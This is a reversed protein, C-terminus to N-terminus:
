SKDPDPRTRWFDERRHAREAALLDSYQQHAVDAPMEEVSAIEIQHVQHWPYIHRGRLLFGSDSWNKMLAEVETKVDRQHRIPLLDFAEGNVLHARLHAILVTEPVHKPQPEDDM